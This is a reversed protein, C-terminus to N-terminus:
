YDSGMELNRAISYIKVNGMGEIRMRLHDCRRPRITLTVTRLNEAIIEGHKVWIGKSDYDLYVRVRSGGEMDLRFNYRSVYKKDPYEYYMVGTEAYWRVVDELM